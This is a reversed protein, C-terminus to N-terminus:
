AQSAPDRPSRRSAAYATVCVGAAVVLDGVSLLTDIPAPPEVVDGLFGLRDHPGAPRHKVTREIPREIRRGLADLGVAKTPMGHNLGIVLANLAVGLLIVSVGRIRLNVGCFAILLAYSLMLTAYGVSDFQSKPLDVVDILGQLAVGVVLLPVARLRLAVLKSWDGRSLAVTLIAVFSVLLAYIM